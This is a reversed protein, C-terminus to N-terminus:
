NYALIIIISDIILVMTVGLVQYTTYMKLVGMRYQRYSDSVFAMSRQESQLGYPDM